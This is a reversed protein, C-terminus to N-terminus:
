SRRWRPLRQQFHFLGRRTGLGSRLRHTSRQVIPPLFLIDTDATRVPLEGVWTDAWVPGYEEGLLVETGTVYNGAVLLPDGLNAVFQGDIVRPLIKFDTNASDAVVQTNQAPTFVLFSQIAM